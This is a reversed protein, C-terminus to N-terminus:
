TEKFKLGFEELNAKTVWDTSWKRLICLPELTLSPMEM